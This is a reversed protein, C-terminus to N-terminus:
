ATRMRKARALLEDLRKTLAIKDYKGVSTKPIDDTFVIYDPLMWKTIKGKAVGETELFKMIDEERQTAGSVLKIIAAPREGWKADPVRVYAAELVYDATATLNELLMTPIMEAGSRIVDTIRDAIVTYGDEDIKAVDGTHFWGDRWVEATKEPDKYYGEMVWPGRVVIEGTTGGDHPVPKGKEDVVEVELGPEPLGTKVRIEDLDEKSWDKMSKKVFGGIIAPAAETMGYGTVSATMGPILEEAKAKLGLPLAAAGVGINALSSLDYDKLGEYEILMALMTPVLLTVTVRETQVLECFGQPTFRGPLAIKNAAFVAYYPILWGHVHFLPVSIMPVAAEGLALLAPDTNWSARAILHLAELYLQRHTFMVGKPAGTTGTTYCLTAYTNEDLYPWELTAAQEKLLEEYEYLPEITTKPKGPTDSMYVFKEVPPKITDCIQELLPLASDDFFIIRDEAHKVTHVIHDLSLRMNIAHLVAGICPVAYYLELHQHHNLAM